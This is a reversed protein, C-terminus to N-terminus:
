TKVLECAQNFEDLTDIDASREIPMVFGRTQATIFNRTQCLWDVKAVYIAGNLQYLPGGYYNEPDFELLHNEPDLRYLWQKHKCQETTTVSLSVSAPAKASLCDKVCADIDEATRLPSTPQLLVIYEYGPLNDIAHLVPAIGPTDNLALNKPRVFPVHCQYAKAIDILAADDSTFIVDTLMCAQHAARITWALLPQGAFDKSNKGPLRTSNGRAPIVGLIKPQTSM